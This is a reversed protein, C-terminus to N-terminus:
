VLIRPFSDIICHSLYCNSFNIKLNFDFSRDKLILKQRGTNDDAATLEKETMSARRDSATTSDKGLEANLKSIEDKAERFILNTHFAIITYFIWSIYTIYLYQPRKNLGTLYM